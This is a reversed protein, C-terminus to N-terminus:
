RTVRAPCTIAFPSAHYGAVTLQSGCTDCRRVPTTAPRIPLPEPDSCPEAAPAPYLSGDVQAVCSWLPEPECGYRATAQHCWGLDAAVVPESCWDCVPHLRAARVGLSFAEVLLGVLEPNGVTGQLAGLEDSPASPSTVVRTTDAISM